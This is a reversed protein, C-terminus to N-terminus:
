TLLIGGWKISFMNKDKIEGFIVRVSHSGLCQWTDRSDRLFHKKGSIKRLNWHFIIDKWKKRRWLWVIHCLLFSTFGMIVKSVADQVFADRSDRLPLLISTMFVWNNWINKTYFFNEILCKSSLNFPFSCNNEKNQCFIKKCLIAVHWTLRM